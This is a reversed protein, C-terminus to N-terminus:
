LNVSILPKNKKCAHSTHSGILKGCTSCVIFFKDHACERVDRKKAEAVITKYDKSRNKYYRTKHFTDPYLHRIEEPIEKMIPVRRVLRQKQIHYLVVNPMVGLKKAIHQGRWGKEVFLFFLEQKNEETLKPEAPNRKKKKNKM